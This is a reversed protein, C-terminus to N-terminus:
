AVSKPLRKEILSRFQGAVQFPDANGNFTKKSLYLNVDVSSYYRILLNVCVTLLELSSMDSVTASMSARPVVRVYLPIRGTTDNVDLSPFYISLSFAFMQLDTAYM